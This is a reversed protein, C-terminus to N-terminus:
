NSKQLSTNLSQPTPDLCTKKKGLSTKSRQSHSAESSDRNLAKGTRFDNGNQKALVQIDGTGQCTRSGSLM